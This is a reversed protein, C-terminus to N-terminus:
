FGLSFDLVLIWSSFRFVCFFCLSFRFFAFYLICPALHLLSPAFFLLACPALPLAFPAFRFAFLARRLFCSAFMFTGTNFFLVLKIYIICADFFEARFNNKKRFYILLINGLGAYRFYAQVGFGLRLNPFFCDFPLLAALPKLVKL